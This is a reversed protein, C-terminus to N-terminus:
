EGKNEALHKCAAEDNFELMCQTYSKTPIPAPPVSTSFGFLSRIAQGAIANGAGWILGEKFVQGFPTPPPAPASKIISRSKRNM